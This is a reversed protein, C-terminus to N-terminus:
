QLVTLIEDTERQVDTNAQMTRVIKHHLRCFIKHQITFIWINQWYSLKKELVLKWWTQFSARDCNAYLYEM